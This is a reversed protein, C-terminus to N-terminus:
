TLIIGHVCYCYLPQSVKMFNDLLIVVFLNILIWQMLVTFVGFFLIPFPKGHNELEYVVHIYPHGAVMQSLLVIASPFSDFNNTADIGYRTHGHPVLGYLNMGTVAFICLFLAVVGMVNMCPVLSVLMSRIIPKLNKFRKILSLIRFMRV